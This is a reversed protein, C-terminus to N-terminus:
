RRTEIGLEVLMMVQHAQIAPADDVDLIRPEVADRPRTDLRSVELNLIVVNM